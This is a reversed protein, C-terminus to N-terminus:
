FSGKNTGRRHDITPLLFTWTLLLSPSASVLGMSQSAEQSLRSRPIASSTLASNKLKNESNLIWMKKRYSSWTSLTSGRLLATLSSASRKQSSSEFVYGLKMLAKLKKIM